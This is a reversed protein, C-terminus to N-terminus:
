LDLLGAPPNIVIWGEKLNVEPVIEMVFPILVKRGEFLEIELLDNGGHILDKIKGIPKDENNLKVKLEILDFVHFEGPSLKPRSDARVLLNNGIFKEAESRDKIEKFKVIFLDKGPLPRGSILEVPKPRLAKQQLWRKGPKTFRESFDSSPNIRIEGNLGQPAVLKGVTIWEKPDLM